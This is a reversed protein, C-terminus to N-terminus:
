FNLVKLTLTCRIRKMYRVKTKVNEVKEEDSSDENYDVSSKNRAPRSREAKEAERLTKEWESQSMIKVGLCQTVYFDETNKIVVTAAYSIIKMSTSVWVSEVHKLFKLLDKMSVM